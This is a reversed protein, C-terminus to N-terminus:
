ANHSFIERAIIEKMIENFGAYVRQMRADAWARAVPYEWMYGYGGHLQVCEDLEKGFAKREQTYEITQELISRAVAIGYVAVSARERSLDNM